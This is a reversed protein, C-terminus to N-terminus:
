SHAALAPPQLREGWRWDGGGSLQVGGYPSTRTQGDVQPVSLPRVDASHAPRVNGGRARRKTPAYSTATCHLAPLCPNPPNFGEDLVVVMLAEVLAQVVDRRRVDVKSAVFGNQFLAFPNFSLCEFRSAQM